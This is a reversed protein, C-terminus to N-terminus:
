EQELQAILPRFEKQWIENNLAGIHRYRIIGQRDILFTEPAGYVGLDIGLNGAGDFIIKRYPNGNSALFSKATNREDKYNLGIFNIETNKALTNLFSHETECNACWSAWVNLISIHGQFEASSIIQKEHLLETLQFHPVPRGILKSPLQHPDQQLGKWLFFSILFFLVLPLLFKMLKAYNLM